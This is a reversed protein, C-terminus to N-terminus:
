KGRFKLARKHLRIQERLIDPDQPLALFHSAEEVSKFANSLHFRLLEECHRKAHYVLIHIDDVGAEGSHVSRNRYHRLQRLYELEFGDDHLFAAKKITNEFSRDSGTLEEIISWLQLFSQDYDYIDLARVYRVLVRKIIDPYSSRRIRATVWQSVAFIGAFDRDFDYLSEERFVTEYWWGENAANGKSDHIIHAPGLLIKNVPKRRGVHLVLSDSRSNEALNWLARQFDLHDIARQVAEEPTRASVAVFTPAYKLAERSNFYGVANACVRSREVAFRKPVPANIKIRTSGNRFQRPAKARISLSTSLVYRSTPSRLYSSIHKRLERSISEETIKGRLGASQLAAWTMRGHESTPVANPFPFSHRVLSILGITELGTFGIKGHQDIKKAAELKRAALEIKPLSSKTMDLPLDLIAHGNRGWDTSLVTVQAGHTKLLNGFSEIHSDGCVFLIRNQGSDEMRRLWEGERQGANRPDGQQIGLSRREEANPDCFLHKVGVRRAALRAVSDTGGNSEILTEFFEEAILSCDNIQSAEVLHELFSDLKEQTKPGREEYYTQIAHNVGILFVAKMQKGKALIYM